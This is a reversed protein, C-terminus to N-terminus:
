YGKEEGTLKIGLANSSLCGPPILAAGGVEWGSTLMM